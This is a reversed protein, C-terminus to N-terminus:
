LARFVLKTKEGNKAFVIKNITICDKASIIFNNNNNKKKKFNTTDEKIILSPNIGSLDLVSQAIMTLNGMVISLILLTIKRKM